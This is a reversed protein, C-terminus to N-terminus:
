DEDRDQEVTDTKAVLDSLGLLRTSEHAPLEGAARLKREVARSRKAADDISNSAENLKKQVKDLAAGFKGFETKVAGLVNWVESSRKEIALTRFGMQLSTLMAALTTPGSIMVRQERQIGDCLGPRRLVEAFLGETPLFLIAFDTTHPPNLYKASIKKAENKVGTELAQSAAAAAEADGREEADVLRQYEEQPFKADIPLWVPAGNEDRGPLKVAYEVREASDPNPAVNQAYQDPTFVEALLNGLQVEGWGGRTKINTLVKKLDGVGTALTRMEGLGKHVDELRESVLKFSEGLRQELTAHLKEDVTARMQDLKQTNDHQLETLKREVTERIAELKKENNQSLVNFNKEFNELQSKQSNAIETMRDALNRGMDNMSNALEKRADSHQTASDKKLEGLYQAVTGRIEELKKTNAETLDHLSNAFGTLQTLQLQTLDTVSKQVSDGFEKLSNRSEDRNRGFEERVSREVRESNEAVSILLQSRANEIAAAQSVDPKRGFIAFVQLLIVIIILAIIIVTPWM